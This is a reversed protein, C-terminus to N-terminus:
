LIYKTLKPLYAGKVFEVVYAGGISRKQRAKRGGGAKGARTDSVNGGGGALALAM